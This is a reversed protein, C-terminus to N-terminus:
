DVSEFYRKLRQEYGRPAQSRTKAQIAGQLAPPLKAFWPEKKLNRTTADSEHKEAKGTGQNEAAAAVQLSGPPMDQNEVLEGSEPSGGQTAQPSTAGPMPQMPTGPQGPM